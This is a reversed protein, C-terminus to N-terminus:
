FSNANSFTYVPGVEHSGVHSVTRRALVMSLIEGKQHWM